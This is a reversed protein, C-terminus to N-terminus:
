SGTPVKYGFHHCSKCYDTFEKHGRHCVSCKLDVYHSKHPNKEYPANATLEILKEYNGHCKVCGEQTEDAEFEDLYNSHCGLCYVGRKRHSHDLYPSSMWSNFFARTAEMGSQDGKMDPYSSFAVQGEKNTTHCALCKDMVEPKKSLHVVHIKEGLPKGKGKPKHCTVCVSTSTIKYNKHSAPLLFSLHKHCGSCKLAAAKVTTQQAFVSQATAFMMFFGCIM